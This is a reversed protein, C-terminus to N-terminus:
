GVVSTTQELRQHRPYIVTESEGKVRRKGFIYSQGGSQSMLPSTVALLPRNNQGFFM